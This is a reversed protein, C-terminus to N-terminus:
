SYKAIEKVLGPHREAIKLLKRMAAGPKAAGREYRSFANAGGGFVRGAEAQTLGLKERILRIGPPNSKRDAKVLADGAAAVRGYSEQDYVTEGCDRCASGTVNHVTMSKGQYSVKKDWTRTKM